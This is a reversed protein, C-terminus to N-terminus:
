FAGPIAIDFEADEPAARDETLHRQDVVGRAHSGGNGGFFCDDGEHIVGHEFLLHFADIGEYARKDM